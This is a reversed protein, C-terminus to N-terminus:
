EHKNRFLCVFMHSMFQKQTNKVKKLKLLKRCNEVLESLVDRMLNPSKDRMVRVPKVVTSSSKQNRLDKYKRVSVTCVRHM